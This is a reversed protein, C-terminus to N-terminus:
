HHGGPPEAPASPVTPPAAPEPAVTGHLAAPPHAPEAASPKPPFAWESMGRMLVFFVPVFFIPLVTAAIMGGFIATGLAQQGGAGAGEARVLPVVGLIFALSTMLIPRFRLRSAAVAAERVTKGHLREEVAFEVILIANKAAMAVLLILGIQTFVNNDLGRVSVAAAAGVLALPVAAVVAVPLTLSEYQAALILFVLLLGFAAVVPGDNGAAKEQYAQATWEFGMSAPMRSEAAQEMLALAQGSSVGPGPQGYIAASPSQNYRVVVQPGFSDRVKVLTSLPMMRGDVGRIELRGIDEPRARYASDAQVRVQWTKGFKNFDNVYASGLAAQMTGFVTGLNLGMTKAKDRDVDAYLQPVGTRLTTYVGRLGSQTNADAALGDAVQQLTSLGAGGRDQLMMQFGGTSGLGPLSPPNFAFSFAEPVGMVKKQLEGLIGTYHLPTGKGGPREAFDKLTVFVIGVNSINVGDVPSFGAFGTTAAVGPTDLCAASVRDVVAETRELSAGDPLQMLVMVYGQDEEPIFGTPLKTFAWGGAASVGAFAVLMLPIVFRGVSVRVTGAYGATLLNFVFNFPTFLV